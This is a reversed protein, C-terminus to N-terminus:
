HTPTNKERNIFHAISGSVENVGFLDPSYIDDIRPAESINDGQWAVIPKEIEKETFESGKSITKETFSSGTTLTKKTFDNDSVNMRSVMEM